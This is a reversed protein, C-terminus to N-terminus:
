TRLARRFASPPAGYARRFSASFYFENQYGCRRAIEAVSLASETLLRAGERLRLSILLAAPTNGFARSFRRIFATLSLGCAAALAPVTWKEALNNHLLALAAAMEPDGCPPAAPARERHLAYWVDSLYHTEAPSFGGLRWGGEIQLLDSELRGFDAPRLIGGRCPLPSKEFQLVYLAVPELAQRYLRAGPPCLVADGRAAVAEPGAEVRCSFRGGACLFIVEREVRECPFDFKRKCPFFAFLTPRPAAVDPQM